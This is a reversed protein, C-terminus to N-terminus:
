LTGANAKLHVIAFMCGISCPFKSLSQDSSALLIILYLPDKGLVNSPVTLEVKNNNYLIFVEITQDNIKGTYIALCFEEKCFKLNTFM